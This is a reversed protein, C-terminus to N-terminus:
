SLIPRSHVLDHFVVYIFVFFTLFMCWYWPFRSCRHDVDTTRERKCLPADVYYSSKWFHWSFHFEKYYCNVLECFPYLFLWWWCYGLMIDYLQYCIMHRNPTSCVSIESLSVCNASLGNLSHHSSRQIFWLNVDTACGFAFSWIYTLVIAWSRAVISFAALPRHTSSNGPHTTPMCSSVVCSFSPFVKLKTYLNSATMSIYNITRMSRVMINQYPRYRYRTVSWGLPIYPISLFLLLVAPVSYSTYRLDNCDIRWLCIKKLTCALRVSCRPFGVLVVLFTSVLIPLGMYFGLLLYTHTMYGVFSPRLSFVSSMSCWFDLFIRHIFFWLILYFLTWSLGVVWIPSVVNAYIYCPRSALWVMGNNGHDNGSTRSLRCGLIHILLYRRLEYWQMIVMIMIVWILCVVDEYVYLMTEIYTRGNCSRWSWEWKYLVFFM